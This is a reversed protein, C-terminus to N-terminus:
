DDDEITGFASGPVDKWKTYHEWNQTQIVEGAKLDIVNIDDLTCIFKRNGVWQFGIQSEPGTYLQFGSKSTRNEPKISTVGFVRRQQVIVYHRCRQLKTTTGVSVRQYIDRFTARQLSWDPGLGGRDDHIYGVGSM